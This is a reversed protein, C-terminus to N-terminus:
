LTGHSLSRMETKLNECSISHFFASSMNKQIKVFDEIDGIVDWPQVHVPRWIHHEACSSLYKGSSPVNPLKQKLFEKETCEEAGAFVGGRGLIVDSECIV